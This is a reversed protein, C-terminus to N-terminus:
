PSIANAPAITVSRWGSSMQWDPNFLTNLILPAPLQWRNLSIQMKVTHTQEVNLRSLSVLTFDQLTGLAELANQLTIFSQVNQNRKNTLVYRRNFGTTHLTTEYRVTKVHREYTWNAIATHETLQIETRFTLPIEHHVAEILADSLTVKTQSDLRVQQDAIKIDMAITSINNGAWAQNVKFLTLWALLVLTIGMVSFTASHVRHRM